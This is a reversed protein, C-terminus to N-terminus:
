WLLNGGIFYKITYYLDDNFRVGSSGSIAHVAVASNTTRCLVPSGSNGSATNNTYKIRNGLSSIYSVYSITQNKENGKYGIVAYNNVTSFDVLSYRYVSLYGYDDGYYDDLIVIAWDYEYNEINNMSAYYQYYANTYVYRIHGVINIHTETEGLSVTSNNEIKPYGEKYDYILHGNTLIVNRGILYCTGAAKNNRIKGIASNPYTNSLNGGLVVNDGSVYNGELDYTDFGSPIYSSTQSSNDTVYSFPVYSFLKNDVDYKLLQYDNNSVYSFLSITATYNKNISSANASVEFYVKSYETSDLYFGNSRTYYSYSPNEVYDCYHIINSSNTPTVYVSVNYSYSVSLKFKFYDSTTINFRFYDIDADTSFSEMVNSNLLLAKCNSFSTSDSVGFAAPEIEQSTECKMQETQLDEHYDEVIQELDYYSFGFYTLFNMFVLLLYLVKM